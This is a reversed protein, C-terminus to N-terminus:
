SSRDSPRPSTVLTRGNIFWSDKLKFLKLVDLLYADDHTLAFMGPKTGRLHYASSQGSRSRHRPPERNAYLEQSQSQRPLFRSPPASNVMAMEAASVATIRHAVAGATSRAASPRRADNKAKTPAAGIMPYQHVFGTSPIVVM